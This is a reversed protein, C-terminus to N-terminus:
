TETFRSWLIRVVAGMVIIFLLCFMMELSFMARQRLIEEGESKSDGNANKMAELDDELSRFTNSYDGSLASSSYSRCITITDPISAEEDSEKECM